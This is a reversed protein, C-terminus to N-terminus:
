GVPHPESVDKKKVGESVGELAKVGLPIEVFVTTGQGPASELTLRGGVLAAREQMGFLGLRQGEGAGALTAPVDFGRGDDEVIAVVSGQRRELIVGVHTAAAHRVVNTLAEQVIRYLAMEVEAPLRLGPPCAAQFDARLGHKRGYDRVFQELAMVLGLRDLASPRLEVSLRHLDDLIQGALAKLDAAQARLAENGEARTEILRLGVILSTLASGAEDHLERAIRQREAEQATIIQNLLRARLASQRQVEEWLWASEVAVGVQQGIAALLAMEEPTFAGRASNSAINMAGVARGRALLPVSVHCCLDSGCRRLRVLRPCDYRVEPLGAAAYGVVQRCLCEALDAAKEGQVFGDPLGQYAVISLRGGEREPLVVWGAPAGIVELTTGLAATLMEDLGHAGSIAAAVSNLAVLKRNHRLLDDRHRALDATMRNFAASLEGIEDAMWVKVQRSLDGQGVARALDVLDFVPRTLIHTLFLALTVGLALAAATAAILEWTARIVAASLRNQSLGVRAVGVQGGFIPVAVDQILGEESDLVQVQYPVDAALANVSLLDPPVGQEFSHVLVQGEPGLIFVYRVDANNELTDRVLAYLAFTNGTLILDTSRAALDRTIAIGREQLSQGLDAALRARVQLTVGLGLLLVVGVVMGAIKVRISVATIAHWLRLALNANRM